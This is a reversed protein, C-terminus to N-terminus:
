STPKAEMEKKKKEMIEKYTTQQEPTLFEMFKAEKEKKLAMKKEKQAEKDLSADSLVADIKDNYEKNLADYKVVQEPNLKLEEKIKKEWEAREKKLDKQEQAVALSSVLVTFGLLLLLRKM